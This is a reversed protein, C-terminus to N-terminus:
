AAALKERRVLRAAHAHRLRSERPELHPRRGAGARPPLRDRRGDEGDGVAAAGHRRRRVDAAHARCRPRRARGAHGSARFDLRGLPVISERLRDAPLGALAARFASPVPDSLNADPRFFLPVIADLLPPAISGAAAIADLMGFYRLRTADPEAELSADMLVLSRVRQPERLALRAGWMRGVSLGVVACQEIELADLLASAHAALDDLTQTGAPLPGSAGHGWRDPVIVRYRRSLADIQPAWMAADWLYSNDSCCRFGTGHDAHYHLTSGHITRTLMPGGSTHRRHAAARQRASESAANGAVSAGRMIACSPPRQLRRTYRTAAATARRM